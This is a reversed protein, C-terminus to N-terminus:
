KLVRRKKTLTILYANKVDEELFDTRLLYGEKDAMEKLLDNLVIDCKHNVREVFDYHNEILIDNLSAQTHHHCYASNEIGHKKMM